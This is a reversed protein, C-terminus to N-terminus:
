FFLYFLVGIIALWINTIGSVMINIKASRAKGRKFFSRCSKFEPWSSLAALVLFGILNKPAKSVESAFEVTIDLFYGSIILLLIAPILFKKSAKERGEEFEELFKRQFLILTVFFAIVIWIPYFNEPILYLSLATFSSLIIGLFLFDEDKKLFRVLFGSSLGALLLMIPNMINSGLPTSTGFLADGTILGILLVVAEPGNTVFGMIMGASKLSKLTEIIVEVAIGILTMTFIVGLSAIISLSLNGGNKLASILFFGVVAVWIFIDLKDIWRREKM